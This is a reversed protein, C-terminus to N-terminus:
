FLVALHHFPVDNMDRCYEKPGLKKADSVELMIVQHGGLFNRCLGSLPAGCFYWRAWCKSYGARDVHTYKCYFQTM